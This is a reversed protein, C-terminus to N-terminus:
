TMDWIYPRTCWWWSEKKVETGNKQTCGKDMKLITMLIKCPPVEWINIRQHSKQQLTQNWFTNENTQHVRRIKEKIELQKITDEELIGLYNYNEKEGLIRIREQNPLEIGEIIQSKGSKMILMFCKELGFKIGIDQTYIRKTQGLSALEKENKAFLKIDDMYM